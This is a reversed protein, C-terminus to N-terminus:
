FLSPRSSGGLLGPSIYTIDHTGEHGAWAFLISVQPFGGAHITLGAAFSHHMHAIALDGRNAAVMGYQTLFELGFPGWISHEISGHFLLLNPARFRYDPYSPLSFDGNIDTGGLTPQFYFPVVNGSPVFSQVVTAGFNISGERNTTHYNPKGLGKGGDPGFARSATTAAAQKYLPIEHSFDLTLRQFSYTSDGAVFEQLSASYDLTLRDSFTRSFRAGEGAQFFGPQHALGPATINSYLLYISPASSGTHPSIDVSRGNLEGFLSFGSNGFPLTGNAGAVVERMAFLAEAAPLTSNGIGYYDLQNLSIGQAYFNLEPAPPPPSPKLPHTPRQTLIVVQSPSSPARAAKVYIGARWSENTSVVADANINLRWNKTDPDYAFAPGFGVGNQPALSGATVHLPTGTFLEQGCSAIAKFSFGCDSSFAQGELKLESALTDPGQAALPGCAALLLIPICRQM